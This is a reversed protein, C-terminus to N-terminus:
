KRAPTNTIQLWNLKPVPQLKIEEGYFYSPTNMHAQVVISSDNRRIMFPRFSKLLYRAIRPAYDESDIKSGPARSAWYNHTTTSDQLFDLLVGSIRVPKGNAGDNAVMACMEHAAGTWKPAFQWDKTADYQSPCRKSDEDSLMTPTLRMVFSYDHVKLSELLAIDAFINQFFEQYASNKGWTPLALGQAFHEDLDQEKAEEGKLGCLEPHSSEDKQKGKCKRNSGKIDYIRAKKDDAIDPILAFVNMMVGFYEPKDYKGARVNVMAYFRALSSKPHHMWYRLLISGVRRGQGRLRSMFGVDKRQGEDWSKKDVELEWFEKEGKDVEKVRFLGDVTKMGRAGSKGTGKIPTFVSEFVSRTEKDGNVKRVLAGAKGSHVFVRADEPDFEEAFRGKCFLSAKLQEQVTKGNLMTDKNRLQDFGRAHQAHSREKIHDLAVFGTVNKGEVELERCLNYRMYISDWMETVADDFKALADLRSVIPGHLESSLSCKPPSHFAGEGTCKSSTWAKACLTGTWTKGGSQKTDLKFCNCKGSTELPCYTCRKVLVPPCVAVAEQAQSQNSVVRRGHAKADIHIDHKGRRDQVEIRGQKAEM